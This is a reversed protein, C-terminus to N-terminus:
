LLRRVGRVIAIANGVLLMAFMVAATLLVLTGIGDPLAFGQTEVFASILNKSWLLAGM